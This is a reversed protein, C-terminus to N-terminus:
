CGVVCAATACPHARAPACMWINVLLQSCVLTILIVFKQWRQLGELPESLFTSFTEHQTLLARMIDVMSRHAHSLSMQSRIAPSRRLAAVKVESARHWLKTVHGARKWLQPDALVLQLEPREAAYRDIWERAADV